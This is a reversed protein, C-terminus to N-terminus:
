LEAYIPLHRYYVELMFACMCTQYLRGGGRAWTDGDIPWSGAERGGKVQMRTIQKKMVQNWEFWEDGEMHHMVQTAYYWYYTNPELWDIPNQKIYEVGKALRPDDRSWGLYQRCLLAEATMSPKAFQRAVYSYHSGDDTIADLFDEVRRLTDSPVDLGAMRASQLAMVFWGTVSMDSDYNEDYRWGGDPFRGDDDQISVCYNIARQAPRRFEPDRTMGYLECIAITAQAQSYLRQNSYAGGQLGAKKWFRGNDEQWSLM